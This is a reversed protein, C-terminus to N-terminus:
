ADALARITGTAAIAHGRANLHLRDSSYIGRDAGAPHDAFAAHIAGHEAAVEATLQALLTNGARLAEAYKAPVLGTRTIDFLGLTVVDAGTDRFASVMAALDERVARPDFGPRLMDNGGGIVFALDPKFALAPELQTARIEATVLNRRGLNLTAFDPRGPRLAEEIRDTWSLDRYGPSPERIGEAISDGITVVRRWRAGALLEVAQAVPLVHPDTNETPTNTSMGTPMERTESM